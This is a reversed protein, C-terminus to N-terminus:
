DSVVRLSYQEQTIARDSRRLLLLFAELRLPASNLLGGDLDMMLAADHMM